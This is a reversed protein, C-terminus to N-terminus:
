RSWPPVINNMRAYSVLSGSHEHSHAVLRIYVTRVTAPEWFFKVPRDWDEPDSAEIADIAKESAEKLMKVIEAKDTVTKELDGSMGEPRPVGTFALLFHKNVVLHMLMESVSRVGEGPRWSYKEAPIAEALELAHRQALELERLLDSKLTSEQSSQAMALVGGILSLFLVGCITRM